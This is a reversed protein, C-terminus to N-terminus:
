FLQVICIFESATYKSFCNINYNFGDPINRVGIQFKRKISFIVGAPELLIMMMMMMMMM